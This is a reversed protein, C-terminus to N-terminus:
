AVECTTFLTQEDLVAAVELDLMWQGCVAMSGQLHRVYRLCLAILSDPLAADGAQALPFLVREEARSLLPAAAQAIIQDMCDTDTM